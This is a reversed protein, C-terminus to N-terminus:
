RRHNPEHSEMHRIIVAQLERFEARQADVQKTLVFVSKELDRNFQLNANELVAVRSTIAAIEKADAEERIRADHWVNYVMSVLSVTVGIHGWKMWKSFPGDSERRGTVVQGEGNTGLTSNDGTCLSCTSQKM